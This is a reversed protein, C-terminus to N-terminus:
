ELPIYHRLNNYKEPREKRLTDAWNGPQRHQRDLRYVSGSETQVLGANMNVPMAQKLASSQQTRGDPREGVVRVRGETLPVIYWKKLPTAAAAAITTNAIAVAKDCNNM